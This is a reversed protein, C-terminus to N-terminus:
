QGRPIAQLGGRVVEALYAAAFMIMAIQARLLKDISVGPAPVVAAHGLGHVAPKILPVGRILEIYGVCFGKVVPL